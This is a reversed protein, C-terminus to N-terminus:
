FKGKTFQKLRQYYAKPEIKKHGTLAALEEASYYRGKSWLSRLYAGAVPEAFWQEGYRETLDAALMAELLWARLYDIGSFFDDADAFYRLADNEDLPLAAAQGLWGRYLKAPDDMGRHLGMEFLVKACYRRLMYLRQYAVFRGFATVEEEKFNFHRRLFLPNGLLGDFLFGFTETAVNDGLQQFEWLGATTNALHQAHGMEHWLAQYEDFGGAPKLTLRVEGPVDIPYCMARSAKRPRDADDIKIKEAPLGLGGLFNRMRPLLDDKGFYSAFRENGFLRATDCRRLKDAPFGLQFPVAWNQLKVFQKQSDDLFQKCFSAFVTLDVHRLQEALALYDAYGLEKALRRVRQEKRLYRENAERLIPAAANSLEQRAAYDKEERLLRPLEYYGYTKGGYAFQAGALFNDIEDNLGAVRMGIMEGLLYDRFYGYAKKEDPNTAAAAARMMLLLADISFLKEHGNYAAALDVKEGTTRRKWSLEMQERVLGKAEDRLKAIATRDALSIAPAQALAPSLGALLFVVLTAVLPGLLRKM